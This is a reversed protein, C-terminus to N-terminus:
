PNRLRFRITIVIDVGDVVTIPIDFKEAFVVLTNGPNVVFYGYCTTGTGGSTVPFTLTGSDTYAISGTLAPTSWTVGSERAYGAWSPEVFSGLTFSPTPTVNNVFLAITGSNLINTIAEALILKEGDETVQFIAAM